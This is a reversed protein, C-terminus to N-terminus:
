FIESAQLFHDRTLSKLIIFNDIHPVKASNYLTENSMYKTYDSEASRNMNM